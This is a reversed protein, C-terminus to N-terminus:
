SRTPTKSWPQRHRSSASHRGRCGAKVRPCRRVTGAAVAAWWRPEPPQALSDLEGDWQGHALEAARADMREAAVRALGLLAPPYDKELELAENFLDAAEGPNFRELLLLGWRVRLAPNKPDAKVAARFANNADEWRQQKWYREALDAPSQAPAPASCLLLLLPWARMM